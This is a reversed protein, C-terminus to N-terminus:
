ALSSSIWASGDWFKISPPATLDLYMSGTMPSPPATLPVVFGSQSSAVILNNRTTSNGNGVVFAGVDNIPANYTGVVSQGWGVSRNYVGAAHSYKGIAINSIGEAHSSNGINYDALTPAATNFSGVRLQSTNAINLSTDYLTLITSGGIFEATAMLYVYTNSVGTVIQGTNDELVIYTDDPFEATVDGYDGLLTIVGNEVTSIGYGLIGAYSNDGEAHSYTGYAANANGETHSYFGYATTGAGEAHSFEGQSTNNYGQAHSYLGTPNVLTGHGVSSSVYNFVFSNSGSFASGSNFQIQQDAGGPTGNGSGSASSSYLFTLNGDMEEYTLPSGKETRLILPM